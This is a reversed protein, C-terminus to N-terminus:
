DWYKKLPQHFATIPKYLMYKCIYMHVCACVRQPIPYEMKDRYYSVNDNSQAKHGTRNVRSALNTVVKGNQDQMHWLM